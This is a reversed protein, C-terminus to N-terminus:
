KKIAKRKNQIAQIAAAARKQVHQFLKVGRPFLISKPYSKGTAVNKEGWRRIEEYVEDRLDPFCHLESRVYHELRKRFDSVALTNRARAADLTRHLLDYATAIELEAKLSAVRLSELAALAREFDSRDYRRGELNTMPLNEDDAM